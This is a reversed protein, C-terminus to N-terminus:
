KVNVGVGLRRRKRKATMQNSIDEIDNILCKCRTRTLSSNDMNVGRGSSKDSDDDSVGSDDVDDFSIRRRVDPPTDSESHARTGGPSSRRHRHHYDPRM